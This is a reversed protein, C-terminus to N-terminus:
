EADVPAHKDAAVPADVTNDDNLADVDNDTPSALGSEKNVSSTSNTPSVSLGQHNSNIPSSAHPISSLFTYM